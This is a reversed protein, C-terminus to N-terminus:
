IVLQWIKIEYVIQVSVWEQHDKDRKPQSIDLLRMPEALYGNGTGTKCPDYLELCDLVDDIKNYVGLTADTLVTTDRPPEDLANMFWLTFMVRGVLIMTELGGGAEPNDWNRFAQPTILCYIDGPPYELAETDLSLYCTSDNFCGCAVLQTKLNPLLDVINSKARIGM